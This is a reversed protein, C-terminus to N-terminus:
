MMSKCRRFEKCTSQAWTGLWEAGNRSLILEPQLVRRLEPALSRHDQVVLDRVVLDRVVAHVVGHKLRVGLGLYITGWPETKLPSSPSCRFEFLFRVVM